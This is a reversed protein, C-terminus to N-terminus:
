IELDVLKVVYYPPTDFDWLMAPDLSTPKPAAYARTFFRSEKALPISVSTSIRFLRKSRNNLIQAKRKAKDERLYFRVPWVKYSDYAGSAGIVAYAKTVM